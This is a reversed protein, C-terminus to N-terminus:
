QVTSYIPLYFVCLINIHAGFGSDLPELSQHDGNDRKVEPM